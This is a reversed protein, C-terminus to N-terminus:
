LIGRSITPSDTVISVSASAGSDASFSPGENDLLKWLLLGLVFAVVVLIIYHLWTYSTQPEDDEYEVATAAEARSRM